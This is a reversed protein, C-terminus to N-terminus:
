FDVESDMEKAFQRFAKWIFQEREMEDIEIDYNQYDDKEGNNCQFWLIVTQKVVDVDLYFNYWVDNDPNTAKDVCGQLERIEDAIDILEDTPLLEFSLISDDVWEFNQITIYKINNM